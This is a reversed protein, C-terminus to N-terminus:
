GPVGPPHIIAWSAIPASTGASHSSTIPPRPSGSSLNADYQLYIRRQGNHAHGWPLYYKVSATNYLMKEVFSYSSYAQLNWIQIGKGSLTQANSGTLNLSVRQDAPM